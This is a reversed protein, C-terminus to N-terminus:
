ASSSQTSPGAAARELRTVEGGGDSLFATHALDVFLGCCVVGPLLTIWEDVSSPDDIGAPYACDLVANGNDTRYRGADRATVEFGEQALSRSVPGLAFPVVEVPVPFTSGLRDVLKDHTAIVVFRVAMTAVVKERLLAGGGGKTLRLERDLEDAGDVALAVEGTDDASLLTFGLAQALVATAKSTPIGRVDLQREALVELFLAMTTGSGLGLTMGPEVLDAAAAAAARKATDAM